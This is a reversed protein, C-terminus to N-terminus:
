NIIPSVKKTWGTYQDDILSINHDFQQDSAPQLKATISVNIIDVYSVIPRVCCLQINYFLTVGM